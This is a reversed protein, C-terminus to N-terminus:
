TRTFGISNTLQFNLSLGLNFSFNGFPNLSINQGVFLPQKQKKHTKKANSQLPNLSSHLFFQHVGIFFKQVDGFLDNPSYGKAPDEIFLFDETEQNLDLNRGFGTSILISLPQSLGPQLLPLFILLLCWMWM